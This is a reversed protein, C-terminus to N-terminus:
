RCQLCLKTGCDSADVCALGDCVPTTDSRGSASISATLMLVGLPLLFLAGKMRLSQMLGAM